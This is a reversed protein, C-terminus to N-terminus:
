ISVTHKVSSGTVITLERGLPRIRIILPEAVVSVSVLYAQVGDSSVAMMIEM